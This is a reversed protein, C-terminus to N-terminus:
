FGKSLKPLANCAIMSVLLALMPGGVVVRGFTAKQLGASNQALIGIVVCLVIAAVMQFVSNKSENM